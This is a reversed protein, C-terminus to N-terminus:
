HVGSAAPMPGLMRPKTPDLALPRQEPAVQQFYGQIIQMATPAAVHGGLGGHEVLVAVAIRAHRSPAFGAFWAHDNHVNWGSSEGKRNKGVQATGSKGAVDLGEIRASYSTGKQDNVVGQLARRLRELSEPSVNLHGRLTPEVQELVRGSPDEIREVLLPQYLRGGNALAAYAMALQLVTVKVDGQGLATNLAYGVRFGGRQRYFDLTPLFGAAESLGIRTPSGFGFQRAMRTMRELGVKEALHYFYINCSQVLAEHLNVPGHVKMCHFVRRGLEFRGHCPIREDPNILRDELAALTPVIKFTSGPFYTERLVKDVLPRFPDAELRQAEKQTLRGTLQNPDFSPHSGLALVRGTDVEVVVAAASHHRALAQQLIRQLDLDLTLILNAGPVPDRRLEGGILSLLESNPKRQGRADVIIKEFGAQGRLRSEYLRELGMRGVYDGPHYGDALRQPLEEASIMNLHGIAHAALGTPYSRHARVEVDVGPLDLKESELMAMKDRDIDEVALLARYRDLGRKAEIRRKLAAFQEDSLALLKRLRELAEPTLYRPTVYVSYSPRNEALVRGHRDRIQGRVAPRDLEKVFNDTSRRYYEEGSLIQLQFLRAALILFTLLILYSGWRVTPDPQQQGAPTAGRGRLRDVLSVRAAGAEHVELPLRKCRWSM